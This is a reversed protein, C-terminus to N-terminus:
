RSMLSAAAAMLAAASGGHHRDMDPGCRLWASMRVEARGRHPDMDPGCRLWGSM